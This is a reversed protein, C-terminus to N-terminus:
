RDFPSGSPESSGMLFDLDFGVAGQLHYLHHHQTKQKNKSTQKKMISVTPVQSAPQRQFATSTSLPRRDIQLPSGELVLCGWSCPTCKTTLNRHAELVIRAIGNWNNILSLVFVLHSLLSLLFFHLSICFLTTAVSEQWIRGQQIQRGFVEARVPRRWLGKRSPAVSSWHWLALLVWSSKRLSRWCEAPHCWSPTGLSKLGETLM